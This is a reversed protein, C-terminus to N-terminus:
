GSAERAEELLLAFSAYRSDSAAGSALLMRVACDPEKLHWCDSFRCQGIAPRFEPFAGALENPRIQWLALHQLGPTDVVYGGEPLRFFTSGVTTHRGRGLKRSVERVTLESDPLLLNLLSSKGVGSPGAFVTSNGGLRRRLAETGEGRKASTTLVEYGAASYVDFGEPEASEALDVKNLVIFAALDNLEALVLFRDLLRFDPAPRDFAVVAALQDVNAVITQERSGAVARRSIKSTRPLLRDIRCGGDPLPELLVHDGTVVQEDGLKLRGRLTCDLIEGGVEVQYVGGAIRLVRGEPLSNV